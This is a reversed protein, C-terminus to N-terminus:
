NKYQEESCTHSNILNFLFQTFSQIVTLKVRSVVHEAGEIDLEVRRSYVIVDDRAATKVGSWPEISYLGDNHQYNGRKFCCCCLCHIACSIAIHKAVTCTNAATEKSKRVNSSLGVSRRYFMIVISDDTLSRM